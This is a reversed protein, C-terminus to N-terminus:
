FGNTKWNPYVFLIRPPPKEGGMQFIHDDFHSDEGFLSSFLFYNFGGGLIRKCGFTHKKQNVESMFTDLKKEKPLIVLALLSFFFSFFCIIANAPKRFIMNVLFFPHNPGSTMDPFCRTRRM